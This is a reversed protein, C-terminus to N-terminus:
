SRQETDRLCPENREQVGLPLREYGIRAVAVGPELPRTQALAARHRGICIECGQITLDAYEAALSDNPLALPISKERAGQSQMGDPKGHEIGTEYKRCRRLDGLSDEGCNGDDDAPTNIRRSARPHRPQALAESFAPASSM